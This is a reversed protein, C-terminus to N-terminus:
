ETTPPDLAMCRKGWQAGSATLEVYDALDFRRGDALSALARGPRRRVLGAEALRRLEHVVAQSGEYGPTAGKLLNELHRLQTGPILLPLITDIEDIRARQQEHQHRLEALQLEFGGFGIKQVYGILHPWAVMAATMLALAAFACEAASLRNATPVKGTVILVPYGCGVLSLLAATVYRVGSHSGQSGREKSKTDASSTM